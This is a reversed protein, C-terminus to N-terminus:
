LHCKLGLGYCFTELIHVKFTSDPRTFPDM